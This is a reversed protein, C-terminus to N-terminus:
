LQELAQAGTELLVPEEDDVLRLDLQDAAAHDAGLGQQAPAGIISAIDRGVLEDGQGLLAAEDDRDALEDQAGGAMLELPQLGQAVGVEPHSDIHRHRLEAVRAEQVGQGARQAIGADGALVEFELDGLRHGHLIGFEHQAEQGADLAQAETNRDVVEAGAEGAQALEALQLDVAQLDVAGKHLLGLGGRGARGDCLHDDVQAM